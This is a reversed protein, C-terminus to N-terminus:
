KVEILGLSRAPLAINIAAPLRVEFSESKEDINIIITKMGQGELEICPSIKSDAYNALAVGIRGDSAQWTASQVLPEKGYGFDRAPVNSVIWPRLMKGFVLFDRGIGTRFHTARKGWDLIANQDPIGRDWIHNWEFAIQGKDRLTFNLIYGNVIARAVSARLAEDNVSNLYFGSHAPLYEHYIFSYLPCNLSGGGGIRADWFQFDQIYVEPPAGESSISVSPNVSRALANDQRLLSSFKETMWPGPVPPHGHNTAYCYVAGVGQDFQQVVDPGLEAMHRTMELVMNRGAETGVCTAYVKRWGESGIMSGDWKRSIASEGGHTRFYEMGDYGTNKQGVVWNLGNGYLVPHWGKAKSATMFERMAAEGGVPPFAEPQVWPGAFEWNFVIPLLPADFAKALKDLYPLANTAPAYETNLAAPPDWDGQGRMPFAVGVLPEFLWKPCDSRQALKVSCFPQKNAWNRYIEAAAHWDGRFTGLVVHYPLKTKGPGCTGPYHGLGLTVGDREVIPSILKPLGNPDECALYLGGSHNYYAMLQATCERPYNTSRWTEPTNYRPSRWSGIVTTPTVPGSLVGDYLSSLIYSCNEDTPNNDFPVEVIPFQIHGIWMNTPNDVELSWYTLAENQPCHITVSASVDIDSIGEFDLVITESGDELTKTVNVKKAESSTVTKFKSDAGLFEIKFLPLRGHNPILLEKESGSAMSFSEITGKNSDLLLRYSPNIVIVPPKSAAMNLPGFFMLAFILWHHRIWGVCNAKEIKYNKMKM